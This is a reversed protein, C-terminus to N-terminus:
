EVKLQGNMIRWHGPFTCLYPYIGPQAPAEFHITFTGNPNTIDTYFLVDHQTQNSTQNYRTQKVSLLKTKEGM